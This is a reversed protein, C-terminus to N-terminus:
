LTSKQRCTYFYIYLYILLLWVQEVMDMLLGLVKTKGGPSGNFLDDIDKYRSLEEDVVDNEEKTTLSSLSTYINNQNLECLPIFLKLTFLLTICITVPCTVHVPAVILRIEIDLEWILCFQFDLAM